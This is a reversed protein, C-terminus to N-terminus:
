LHEIGNKINSLMAALPTSQRGPEAPPVGDVSTHVAPGLVAHEVPYKFVQLSFLDHADLELTIEISLVM